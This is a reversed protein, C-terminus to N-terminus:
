APKQHGSGLLTLISCLEMRVRNQFIVYQSHTNTSNLIRCAIHMRWITMQPRGLEVINKWMIEDIIHNEFFTISYL